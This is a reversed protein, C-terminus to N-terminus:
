GSTDTDCLAERFATVDCLDVQRNQLQKFKQIVRMSQNDTLAKQECTCIMLIAGLSRDSLSNRLSTKLLKLRSFVRECEVSVLPLM